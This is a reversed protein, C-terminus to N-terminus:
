YTARGGSIDFVAGTSFSCAPSALWEVMAAVEDPQGLRGMPIKSIVFRTFEPTMQRLLETEIAAPAVCNVRISTEALEKGLSKTLAIVGAKSASYASANPNGEKGAISALNVIRGNEGKQMVPVVARCCLFTGDLNIAMVRRWEELTYATLLQNPGTIGASNILVDIRGFGDTVEKVGEEVSEQRTVDVVFAHAGPLSAAARDVANRDIDWLAVTDGAAALRRAIAYGLGGAGGTIVAVRAASTHGANQDAM